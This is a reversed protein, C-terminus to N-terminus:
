NHYLVVGGVWDGQLVTRWTLPRERSECLIYPSVECLKAKSLLVLLSEKNGSSQQLSGSFILVLVSFWWFWRALVHVRVDLLVLFNFNLCDFFFYYFGYGTDSSLSFWWLHHSDLSLTASAGHALISLHTDFWFFLFFFFVDIFLTL